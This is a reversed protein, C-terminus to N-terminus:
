TVAPLTCAAKVAWGLRSLQQPTNRDGATVKWQLGLRTPAGAEDTVFILVM